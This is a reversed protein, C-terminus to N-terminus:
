KKYVKLNLSQLFLKYNVSMLKKCQQKEFVVTLNKKKKNM